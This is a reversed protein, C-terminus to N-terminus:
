RQRKLESIETNRKAVTDTLTVMMHATEKAVQAKERVTGHALLRNKTAAPIASRMDDKSAKVLFTGRLPLQMPYPDKAMAKWTSAERKKKNKKRKKKVINTEQNPEEKSDDEANEQEITVTEFRNWLVKAKEAKCNAASKLHQAVEKPKMDPNQRLLSERIENNQDDREKLFDNWSGHYM